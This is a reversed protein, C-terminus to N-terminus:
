HDQGSPAGSGGKGRLCVKGLGVYAFGLMVGVQSVSFGCAWGLRQGGSLEGGCQREEIRKEKTGTACSKKLWNLSWCSMCLPFLYWDERRHIGWYKLVIRKSNAKWERPNPSLVAKRWSYQVEAFGDLSCGVLRLFHLTLSPINAISPLALESKAISELLGM